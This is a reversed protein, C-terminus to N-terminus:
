QQGKPVNCGAWMSACHRDVTSDEGVMCLAKVGVRVGEGMGRFVAARAAKTPKLSDVWLRRASHKRWYPISGTDTIVSAASRMRRSFNSAQTTGSASQVPESDMRSAARPDRELLRQTM